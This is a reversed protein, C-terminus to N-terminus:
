NITVDDSSVFENTSVRYYTKGHFEFSRDVKWSSNSILGRNSLNGTSNILQKTSDSKTTVTINKDIYTYTDESNVWENTSVRYYIKGDKQMEQDSIWDTNGSLRRNSQKSNKDFLQASDKM